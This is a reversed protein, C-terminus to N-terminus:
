TFTVYNRILQILTFLIFTISYIYVWKSKKSFLWHTGGLLTLSIPLWLIFDQRDFYTLMSLNIVGSLFSYLIFSKYANKTFYYIGLFMFVIALFPYKDLNQNTVTIERPHFSFFYNNPDTLAFFNGGFKDSYIRTKNQFIRALPPNPYLHINRIVEQRAQYDPIFITQGWFSKWVVFLAMISIIFFVIPFKKDKSFPTFLLTFLVPFFALKPEFVPILLTPLLYFRFRRKYLLFALSLLVLPILYDLFDSKTNALYLNLPWSFLILFSVIYKLKLKM